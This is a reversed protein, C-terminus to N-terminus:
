SSGARRKIDDSLAQKCADILGDVETEILELGEKYDELSCKVSSGEDIIKSARDAIDQFQKEISKKM